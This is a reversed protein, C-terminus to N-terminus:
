LFTLYRFKCQLYLMPIKLGTALNSRVEISFRLESSGAEGKGISQFFIGRFASLQPHWARSLLWCCVIMKSVLESVSVPGWRWPLFLWVSGKPRTVNWFCLVWFLTARSKFSMSVLPQTLFHDYHLIWDESSPLVTSLSPSKLSHPDAFALQIFATQEVKIYVTLCCRKLSLLVPYHCSSIEFSLNTLPTIADVFQWVYLLLFHVSWHLATWLGEQPLCKLVSQGFWSLCSSNFIYGSNSDTQSSECPSLTMESALFVLLIFM